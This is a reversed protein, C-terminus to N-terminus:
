KVNKILLKIEGIKVYSLRINRIIERVSKRVTLYNEQPSLRILSAQGHDIILKTEALKVNIISM